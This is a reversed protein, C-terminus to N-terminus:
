GPHNDPSVLRPFILGQGQWWTLFQAVFSPKAWSTGLTRYVQAQILYVSVVRLILAMSLALQQMPLEMPGEFGGTGRGSALQNYSEAIVETIADTSDNKIVNAM